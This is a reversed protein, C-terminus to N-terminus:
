LRFDRWFIGSEDLLPIKESNKKIYLGFSIRSMLKKVISVVTTDKKMNKSRYLGGHYRKWTKAEISVVPYGKWTKVEISVVMTDKEM